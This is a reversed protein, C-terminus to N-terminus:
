DKVVLERFLEYIDKRHGVHHIQVKHDDQNCFAIKCVDAKSLLTYTLLSPNTLLLM